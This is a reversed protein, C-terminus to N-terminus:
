TSMCLKHTGKNGHPLFQCSWKSNLKYFMYIYRSLGIIQYWITEFINLDQITIFKQKSRIGRMHLRRPIIFAWHDEFSLSWFEHRLLLTKEHPFKKCCNITCCKAVGEDRVSEELLMKEIRSISGKFDVVNWKRRHFSYKKKKVGVAAVDDVNPIHTENFSILHEIFPYGDLIIQALLWKWITMVISVIMLCYLICLRVHDGWALWWSSNGIPQM